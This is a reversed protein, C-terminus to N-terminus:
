KLSLKSIATKGNVLSVKVFYIGASYNLPRIEMLNTFTSVSNKEIHVQQGTISIIEIKDIASPTKIYFKSDAPNPYINVTVIENEDVSLTNCFCDHMGTNSFDDEPLSDWETTVMFQGPNTSVGKGVTSKRILTHDTTWWVGNGDSWAVGPDEGIKGVLDIIATGAVDSLIVADDGNFYFPSNAQVYVPNVFTDTLAQLAPDVQCELGPCPQNADRKDVTVVYTGKAAITGSLQLLMPNSAGDRFRGVKYNSLSIPQDTPNYLELSRNNNSGVIYESIFLETCDQAFAGFTFVALTLSLLTKKMTRKKYILFLLIGRM